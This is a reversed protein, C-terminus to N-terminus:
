RNVEHLGILYSAFGDSEMVCLTKGLRHFFYANFSDGLQKLAMRAPM